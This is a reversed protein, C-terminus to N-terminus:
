ELLVADQTVIIILQVLVTNESVPVRDRRPLRKTVGLDRALIVIAVAQRHHVCLRVQPFARMAVLRHLPQPLFPGVDKAQAVDSDWRDAEGPVAKGVLDVPVGRKALLVAVDIREPQEVEVALDAVDPSSVLLQDGIPPVHKRRGADAEHHRDLLEGFMVLLVSGAAVEVLAALRVLCATVSRLIPFISVKWTGGRQSNTRTSASSPANPQPSALRSPQASVTSPAKSAKRSRKM